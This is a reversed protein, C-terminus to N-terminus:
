KVYMNIVQQGNKNRKKDIKYGINDAYKLIELVQSLSENEFSATLLFDEWKRDETIMIKVNYWYELERAVKHIPADNFVLYGSIRSDINEEEMKTKVFDKTLRDYRVQEGPDMATLFSVDPLDEDDFLMVKGEKLSVQIYESDKFNEVNFQTGVVQVMLNNLEVFFPKLSDKKVDFFAEGTVSVRRENQAFATPYEIEAGANLWVKTGDALVLSSRLGAPCHVTQMTVDCVSTEDNTHGILLGLAILLPLFLVAAIRQMWQWYKQKIFRKEIRLKVTKLATSTNYRKMENLFLTANWAEIFHNYVNQNAESKNKWESLKKEEKGSIVGTLESVILQEIRDSLNSEQM